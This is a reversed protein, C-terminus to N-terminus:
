AHRHEHNEGKLQALKAVETTLRRRDDNLNRLDSLSLTDLFLSLSHAVLREAARVRAQQHELAWGM